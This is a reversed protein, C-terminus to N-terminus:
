PGVERTASKSEAREHRLLWELAQEVQVCAVGHHGMAMLGQEIHPRLMTLRELTERFLMRRYGDAASHRDFAGDRAEREERSVALAGAIFDRDMPKM